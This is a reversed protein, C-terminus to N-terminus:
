FPLDEPTLTVGGTGFYRASEDGLLLTPPFIAKGTFMMIALLQSPNEWLDGGLSFPENFPANVGTERYLDNAHHLADRFRELENYEEEFGDKGLGDEELMHNTHYAFAEDIANKANAHREKREDICPQYM